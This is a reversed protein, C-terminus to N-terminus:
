TSSGPTICFPQTLPQLYLLKQESLPLLLSISRLSM